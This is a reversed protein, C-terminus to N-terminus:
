PSRGELEKGGKRGEKPKSSGYGKKIEELRRELDNRLKDGMYVGGYADIRSAIALKGALNRAIKGRIAKPSQHVLPHQFLIGHKPPRAGTRISRFLAKEAGLVQITSSPMRSLKDISGARAILKACLIPGVLASTNPALEEAMHSIYAELSERMGMLGLIVEAMRRIQILDEEEFDAGISEKSARQIEEIRAESSIFGKLREPSFDKRHGLNAVIKLFTEHNEVLKGLEPFHLGYWERIRSLLLNIVRDIEELAEVGQVLISDKKESAKKIRIRTLALSVKHIFAHYDEEREVFGLEVAMKGPNEFLSEIWGQTEAKAYFAKIGAKKLSRALNESDVLFSKYGMGRLNRILAMTEEPPNGSELGGLRLAVDEPAKPFFVKALLTGDPKLAFVGMPLHLLRAEM